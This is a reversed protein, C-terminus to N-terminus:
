TSIQPLPALPHLACAYDPMGPVPPNSGPLSPSPFPRQAVPQTPFPSLFTHRLLTDRARIPYFGPLPSPLSISNALPQNSYCFFPGAMTSAELRREAGM